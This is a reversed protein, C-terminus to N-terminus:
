VVEYQVRIQSFEVVICEMEGSSDSGYLELSCESGAGSREWGGQELM